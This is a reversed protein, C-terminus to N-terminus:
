KGIMKKDELSKKLVDILTKMSSIEVDENIIADKLIAIQKEIKKELRKVKIHMIYLENQISGIAM